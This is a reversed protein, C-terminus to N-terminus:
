RHLLARGSELYRTTGLQPSSRHPNRSFLLRVAMGDGFPLIRRRLQQSWFPSREPDTSGDHTNKGFVVRSVGPKLVVPGFFSLDFPFGIRGGGADVALAGTGGATWRLCFPESLTRPSAM